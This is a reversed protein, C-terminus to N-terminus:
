FVRRINHLLIQVSPRLEEELNTALIYGTFSLSCTYSVPTALFIAAFCFYHRRDTALLSM